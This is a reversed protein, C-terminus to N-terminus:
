RPLDAVPPGLLARLDRLWDLSVIAGSV